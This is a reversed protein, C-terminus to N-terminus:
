VCPKSAWCYSRPLLYKILFIYIIDVPKTTETPYM